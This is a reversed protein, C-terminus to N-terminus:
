CSAQKVQIKQIAIELTLMNPLLFTQLRIEYDEYYLEYLAQSYLLKGDM